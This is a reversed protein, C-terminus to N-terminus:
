SLDAESREQDQLLRGVLEVVKRELEVLSGDNVIEYDFEYDALDVESAHGDGTFGPRSVKIMLGGLNKVAQAENLFRVDSIAVKASPTVGGLAQEVWFNEGFVKRAGVGLRQLIARVEPHHRKADDWGLGQVTWKLRGRGADVNVSQTASTVLPDLELALEKLKDAFGIRRFGLDRCLAMTATDKGVQYNFGFGIIM